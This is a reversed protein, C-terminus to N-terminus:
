VKHIKHKLNSTINSGSPPCVGLKETLKKFDQIFAFYTDRTIGKSGDVSLNPIGPPRIWDAVSRPKLAKFTLGHTNHTCHNKIWNSVTYKGYPLHELSKLM